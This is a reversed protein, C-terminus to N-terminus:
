SDGALLLNWSPVMSRMSRSSMSVIAIQDKPYADSIGLPVPAATFGRPRPTGSKLTNLHFPCATRPVPRIQNSAM